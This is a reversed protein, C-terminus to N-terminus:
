VHSTHSRFFCVSQGGDLCLRFFFREVGPLEHGITLAKWRGFFGVGGKAFKLFKLFRKGGTTGARPPNPPGALVAKFMLLGRVVVQTQFHHFTVM